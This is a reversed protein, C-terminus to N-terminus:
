GNKEVTVRFTLDSEPIDRGNWARWESVAAELAEPTLESLIETKFASEVSKIDDTESLERVALEVLVAKASTLAVSGCDGGWRPSSDFTVCGPFVTPKVALLEADLDVPLGGEAASGSGEEKDPTELGRRLRRKRKRDSKDVAWNNPWAARLQEEEGAPFTVGPLAEKVEELAVEELGVPVTVIYRMLCLRYEM